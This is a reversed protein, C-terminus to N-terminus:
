SHRCDDRRMSRPDRETRSRNSEVAIPWHLFYTANGKLRARPAYRVRLGTTEAMRCRDALALAQPKAGPASRCSRGGLKM